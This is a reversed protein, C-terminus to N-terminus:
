VGRPASHARTPHAGGVTKSRWPLTPPCHGGSLSAWRIVRSACVARRLEALSLQSPREARIMLPSDATKAGPFNFMSAAVMPNRWKPDTSWLCEEWLAAGYKYDHSDRGKHFIMRRAADFILDPSGGRALYSMAMTGAKKRDQSMTAFIEGM